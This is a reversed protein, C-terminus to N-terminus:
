GLSGRCAVICVKRDKETSRRRDFGRVHFLLEPDCVGTLRCQDVHAKLGGHEGYFWESIKDPKIGRAELRLFADAIRQCGAQTDGFM